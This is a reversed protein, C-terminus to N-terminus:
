GQYRDHHHRMGNLGRGTHRATWWLYFATVLFLLALATEFVWDYASRLSFGCLAYLGSLSVLASAYLAWQRHLLIGAVLLIMLGGGAAAFPFWLLLHDQHPAFCEGVLVTLLYSAAGIHLPWTLVLATVAFYIGLRQRM